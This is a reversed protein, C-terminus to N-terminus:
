KSASGVMVLDITIMEKKLNKAFFQSLIYYKQMIQLFIPLILRPNPEIIM